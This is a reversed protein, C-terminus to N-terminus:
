NSWHIAARPTWALASHVMEFFVPMKHSIWWPATTVSYCVNQSTHKCGSLVWGNMIILVTNNSHELMEAGSVNGAEWTWGQSHCMWPFPQIFVWKTFPLIEEQGKCSRDFLHLHRRTGTNSWFWATLQASLNGHVTTQKCQTIEASHLRRIWGPGSLCPLSGYCVATELFQSQSSFACSPPHPLGKLKWSVILPTPHWNNLLIQLVCVRIRHVM